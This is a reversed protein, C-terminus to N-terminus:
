CKGKTQRIRFFMVIVVGLSVCAIATALFFIAIPRFCVAMESRRDMESQRKSGNAARWFDKRGATRVAQDSDLDELAQIRYSVDLVDAPTTTQVDRRGRVLTECEPRPCEGNPEKVTIVIQFSTSRQRLIASNM